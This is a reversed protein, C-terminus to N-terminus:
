RKVPEPPRGPKRFARLSDRARAAQRLKDGWSQAKRSVQWSAQRGLLRAAEDNRM